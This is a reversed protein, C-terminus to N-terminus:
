GDQGRLVDVVVMLAHNQAARTRDTRCVSVSGAGLERLAADVLEAEIGEATFTDTFYEPPVGFFTALPPVAAPPASDRQGTLLEGVMARVERVDGLDPNQTVLAAAIEGATYRRWAAGEKDTAVGPAAGAQQIHWLRRVRNGISAREQESV